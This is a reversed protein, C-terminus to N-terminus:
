RLVRAAPIELPPPGDAGAEPPSRLLAVMRLQMAETNTPVGIVFTQGRDNTVDVVLTPPQFPLRGRANFRFARPGAYTVHGMSRERVLPGVGSRTIWFAGRQELEVFSWRAVAALPLFVVLAMVGLFIAGILDARYRLLAIGGALSGAGLSAFVWVLRRSPDVFRTTAM